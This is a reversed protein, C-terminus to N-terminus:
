ILPPWPQGSDIAPHRPEGAPRGYELRWEEIQALLALASKKRREDNQAMELLKSRVANASRPELTFSNTSQGHPRHEVFAAEIQRWIEYPIAPTARDDILNLGALVGALDGRRGIVVALLARRASPLDLSCLRLLRQSIEEHNQGNEFISAALIEPRQFEIPQAPGAAEPDVFSLLLNRSQPTDLAAVANVWVDELQSLRNKDSAIEELLSLADDCRCHGLANVVSRLHHGYLRLQPILERIWAIGRAPDDVFPLLCLYRQILWEDQPQVGYKRCRDLSPDILNLTVDTPPV